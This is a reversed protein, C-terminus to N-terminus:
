IHSMKVPIKIDRMFFLWWVTYLLRNNMTKINFFFCLWECKNHVNSNMCATTAPFLHQFLIFQYILVENTLTLTNELYHRHLYSVIVCLYQLFFWPQLLFWATSRNMLAAWNALCKREWTRGLVTGNPIITPLLDDRKASAMKQQYLMLKQHLYFGMHTSFIDVLHLITLNIYARPLVDNKVVTVMCGM